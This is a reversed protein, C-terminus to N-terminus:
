TEEGYSCEREGRSKETGETKRETQKPSDKKLMHRVVEYSRSAIKTEKRFKRRPLPKCMHFIETEVEKRQDTM